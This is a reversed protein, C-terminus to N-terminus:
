VAVSRWTPLHLGRHGLRHLRELGTQQCGRLVRGHRGLAAGRGECKGVARIDCQLRLRHGSVLNRVRDDTKQKLLM